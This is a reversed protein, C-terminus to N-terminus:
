LINESVDSVKMSAQMINSIIAAALERKSIKLSVRWFSISNKSLIQKTNCENRFSGNFNM